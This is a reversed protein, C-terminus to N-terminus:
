GTWTTSEREMESDLPPTGRLQCRLIGGTKLVRRAESLYNLVVDRNPIHQFVIYSYVFDFSNDAFMGLSSDPTVHVHAHPIDKLQDCALRVMVDSIDVGHIEGFQRSMPRMLRGRGCGIELASRADSSSPPLRSFEPQLASMVEAAGALFEQEDQSRRGFAVYFHADKRARRNWDARMQENVDM